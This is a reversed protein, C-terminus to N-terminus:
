THRPAVIPWGIMFSYASTMERWNLPDFSDFNCAGDVEEATFTVEETTEETAQNTREKKQRKFM